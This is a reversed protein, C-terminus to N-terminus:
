KSYTITADAEFKRYNEFVTENRFCETNDRRCTITQSHTPLMYTEGGIEVPSYGTSAEVTGIPFSHPTSHTSKEIRLVKGTAQDIWISGSYSPAVYMRRFLGADAAMNWGSHKADITFNYRWALRSDVDDAARATFIAHHKPNLIEDLLLSFEGNSWVGAQPLAKSPKGDIEISSYSERNDQNAVEASVTDIKHWDSIPQRRHPIAHFRTTTRSVIYNPISRVYRAADARASEIIPDPQQGAAALAFLLTTAVARM